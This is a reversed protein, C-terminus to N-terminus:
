KGPAAFVQTWVSNARGVGMEKYNGSMINKCHGESKLWGNIVDAEKSFGSAINEGSWSYSYGAAKIRQQPSTGEPSSHSFYKREVMDKSHKAAALELLINWSLPQVPPMATSGCNCGKSRVDNVLQLLLEKNVNNEVVVVTGPEEPEPRPVVVTDKTCAVALLLCAFPIFRILKTFM